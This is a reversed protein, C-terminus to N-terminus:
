IVVTTNDMDLKVAVLSSPYYALIRIAFISIFACAHTPGLIPLRRVLNSKCLVHVYMARLDNM